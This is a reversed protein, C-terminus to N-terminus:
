PHAEAPRRVLWINSQTESAGYYLTRGDPSVTVSGNLDPPNPLSGAIERRELTEVNQMVLTGRRTFYVIERDGPLWAVNYSYSDDNLRFARGTAADIVGQGVSEGTSDVVYGSIWRGGRSWFSPGIDGGEVKTDLLKTTARTAPWPATSIAGAQPVVTSLLRKGDPAFMSFAVGPAIDTLQTRGSGDIRISYADYKGRLNSYFTLSKSDATFRPMWDRAPDDTLRTLGTGDPKMIFIDQQRDLESVLAIWRGDPSADTPVLTGTRRQLLRTGGIRAAAADFPIAAPNVSELKSRFLLTAGDRSPQPLDMAVDVGSAIPIPQGTARGTGQDVGIRWLGMTGGRDSAFYLSKGDPAWTPAFDVDRDDTVKVRDSGDARMTELDRQGGTSSWFAIREGSPSWAPQYLGEGAPTGIRRAEGGDVDVIWIM